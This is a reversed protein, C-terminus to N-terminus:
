LIHKGGIGNVNVGISARRRNIDAVIRDLEAQTQDEVTVPISIGKGLAAAIGEYRTQMANATREVQEREREHLKDKRDQSAEAREANEDLTDGIAKYRDDIEVIEAAEVSRARAFDSFVENYKEKTADIVLQLSEEDGSRALLVDNIDLNLAKADALAEKYEKARAPNFVLDNAEALIQQESLFNRGEEAAVQYANLWRRKMEGAAEGQERLNELLLDFGWAAVVGGAAGLAGGGALAGLSSVASEAASGIDGQLVDRAIDGLGRLGDGVRSAKDGIKETSEGARKASTSLDDVADEARGVDRSADRGLQGSERRIADYAAEADEASGTLATLARIQDDASRDTADGLDM